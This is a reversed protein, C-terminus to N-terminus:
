VAYRIRMEVDLNLQSSKAVLIVNIVYRMSPNSTGYTSTVFIAIISSYNVSEVPDHCDSPSFLINFRLCIARGSSFWYTRANNYYMKFVNNSFDKVPHFWWFVCFTLLHDFLVSTSMGKRSGKWCEQWRSCCWCGWSSASYVYSGFNWPTLNVVFWYLPHWSCTRLMTHLLQLIFNM